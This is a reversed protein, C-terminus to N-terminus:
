AANERRKITCGGANNLAMYVPLTASLEEIRAM